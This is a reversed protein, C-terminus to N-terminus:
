GDSLFWDVTGALATDVGVVPKWGLLERAKGSDVQLSGCLRGMEAGRGIMGSAARLLVPPCPLLRVRKGMHAGLRRLLEPTSLDEGDSVLFIENAAAPHTLCLRILDVLNELAVLSRRNKVLAFPLPIGWRVLRLLRYFNGKVGPGYVLPPRIVVVEMGSEAAHALLANEAELKSQGYPDMPTAPDDEVFPASMTKEGNVKVSSLYVFRRVGAAAAQRALNLSGEVNVERFAASPDVARERMVHVRAALHVVADIGALAQGWNTDAGIDGVVVPRVGEPLGGGPRRQAARVQKGDAALSSVLAKGVFGTAGTILVSM